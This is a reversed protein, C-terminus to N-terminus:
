SRLFLRTTGAVERGENALKIEPASLSLHTSKDRVEPAKAVMGKIEVTGSDNYLRLDREDIKYLSSHAYPAAAFLAFLVLSMLIIAKKHQRAFFLLPLPILGLLSLALPLDANTGLLIGAVWACGIYILTM